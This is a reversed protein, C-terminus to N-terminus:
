FKEDIHFNWKKSFDDLSTTALFNYIDKKLKDCKSKLPCRNSGCEKTGFLCFDVKPEGEYLKLIDFIKIKNTNGTLRVGGNKGKKSQVWDTKNLSQFLKSLFPYPIDTNESIERIMVYEGNKKNRSLYIMARIMYETAKTSFITM